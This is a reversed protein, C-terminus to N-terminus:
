RARNRPASKTLERANLLFEYFRQEALSLTASPHRILKFSWPISFGQVEVLKGGEFERQTDARSLLSFGMGAEVAEKVATTSGLEMRVNLTVGGMEELTQETIEKIASEEERSIFPEDPLDKPSIQQQAWPHTTGVVVVLEDNLIPAREFSDCRDDSAVIGIPMEGSGVANVVEPDNGVFVKARVGPVKREFRQLWHPLLHEGVLECAAFRLKMNDKNRLNQLSFDLAKVEDLVKRAQEYFTTGEPTVEVGRQSRKLLPVQAERELEALRESISPQSLYMRRAAASISKEEVAACFAELSGLKM